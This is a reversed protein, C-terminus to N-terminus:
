NITRENHILILFRIKFYGLSVRGSKQFVRLRGKFLSFINNRWTAMTAFNRSSLGHFRWKFLPNPSNWVDDINNLKKIHSHQHIKRSQTPFSRGYKLESFPFASFKTNHEGVGYLPRTLNPRKMDYDHLSALNKQYLDIAKKATRTATM